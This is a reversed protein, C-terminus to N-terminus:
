IGDREMEMTIKYLAKEVLNESRRKHKLWRHFLPVSFNYTRSAKDYLITNVVDTVWSMSDELKRDRWISIEGDNNTIRAMHRNDFKNQLYTEVKKEIGIRTPPSELDDLSLLILQSIGSMDKDEWYFEFHSSTTTDREEIIQTALQTIVEPRVYNLRQENLYDIVTSCFLQLFAPHRGTERVLASIANPHWQINEKKEPEEILHQAAQLSLRGLRIINLGNFWPSGYSKGEQYLCQTSAIIWTLRQEAQMVHRLAIGLARGDPSYIEDYEDLLVIVEKEPHDAFIMRIQELFARPTDIQHVRNRYTDTLLQSSQPAILLTIKELLSHFFKELYSTDQQIQSGQLDMMVATYRNLADDWGSPINFRRRIDISNLIHRLMYLTSTKGMRRSALLLYNSHGEGALTSMIQTIEEERGYFSDPEQIASGFQFNNRKKQFPLDDLSIIQVPIFAEQVDLDGYRYNLRLSNEDTDVARLAFSIIQTEDPALHSISHISTEGVLEISNTQILIVEIDNAEVLGTNTVEIFLEVVSQLELRNILATFRLRASTKVSQLQTQIEENEKTCIFNVVTKEHPLMFRTKRIRRIIKALFELKQLQIGQDLEQARSDRQENRLRTLQAVSARFPISILSIQHEIQTAAYRIRGLEYPQEHSIWRESLDRSPYEVTEEIEILQQATQIPISDANLDSERLFARLFFAMNRLRNDIEDAPKKYCRYWERLGLYYGSLKPYASAWKSLVEDLKTYAENVYIDYRGGQWAWPDDLAVIYIARILLGIQTEPSLYGVGSANQHASQILSILNSALIEAQGSNWFVDGLNCYNKVLLNDAGKLMELPIISCSVSCYEAPIPHEQAQRVTWNIGPLSQKHNERLVRYIRLSEGTELFHKFDYHPLVALLDETSELNFWAELALKWATTPNEYRETNRSQYELALLRLTVSLGPSLDPALLTNRLDIFTEENFEAFQTVCFEQLGAVWNMRQNFFPFPQNEGIYIWEGQGQDIFKELEIDPIIAVLGRVERKSVWYPLSLEISKYLLRQRRSPEEQDLNGIFRILYQALYHKTERLGCLDEQALFLREISYFDRGKTMFDLRIIDLASFGIVLPEYSEFDLESFADLSIITNKEDITEKHAFEPIYVLTLRNSITECLVAVLGRLNESGGLRNQIELVKYYDFQM